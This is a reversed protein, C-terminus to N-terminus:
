HQHKYDSDTQVVEIRETMWNNNENEPTSLFLVGALKDPTTLPMCEAWADPKFVRCEDIVVTTEINHKLTM